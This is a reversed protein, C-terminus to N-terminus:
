RTKALECREVWVVNNKLEQVIVRVKQANGKKIIEFLQRAYQKANEYTDFARAKDEGTTFWLGGVFVQCFVEFRKM